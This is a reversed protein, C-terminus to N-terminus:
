LGTMKVPKLLFLKTNVFTDYSFFIKVLKIKYM